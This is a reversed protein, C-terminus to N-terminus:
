RRLILVADTWTSPWGVHHGRRYPCGRRLVGRPDVSQGLPDRVDATPDLATTDIRVAARPEGFYALAGAGDPLTVASVASTTEPTGYGDPLLGLTGADATVPEPRRRCPDALLASLIGIDAARRAM